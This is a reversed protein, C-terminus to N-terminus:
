SHQKRVRKAKEKEKLEERAEERIVKRQWKLLDENSMAEM